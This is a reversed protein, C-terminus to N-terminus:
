NLYAKGAFEGIFHIKVTSKDIYTVEGIVIAGSSDVVAISPFKDMNHIIEWEASSRIQDHIFTKDDQQSALERYTYHLEGETKIGLKTGDWDYLLSKGPPGQAGTETLTVNVVLSQDQLLANLNGETSLTAVLSPDEVQNVVIENNM